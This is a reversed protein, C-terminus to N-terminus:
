SDYSKSKSVETYGTANVVADVFLPALLSFVNSVTNSMGMLTGAYNPSLDIHNVTFGCFIGGTCGVAIVLLTISLVRETNSVFTLAVLAVAPIFM